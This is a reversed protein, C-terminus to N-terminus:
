YTRIGPVTVVVSSTTRDSLSTVDDSGHKKLPLHHYGMIIKITNCVRVLIYYYYKIPKKVIWALARRDHQSESVIVEISPNKAGNTRAASTM